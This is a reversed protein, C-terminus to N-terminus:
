PETKIITIDKLESLTDNYAKIYVSDFEGGKYFYYSEKFELDRVTLPEKKGNQFNLKALLKAETINQMSLEVKYLTMSWYLAMNLFVSITLLVAVILFKTKM